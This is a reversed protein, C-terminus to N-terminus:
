SQIQNAVLLTPAARLAKKQRLFCYDHIILVYNNDNNRM